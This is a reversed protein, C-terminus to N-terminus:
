ETLDIQDQVCGAAVTAEIRKDADSGTTTFFIPLNRVTPSTLSVGNLTTPGTVTNFHGTRRLNESKQRGFEAGALITDRMGGFQTTWVIDTQGTRLGLPFAKPDPRAGVIAVGEAGDKTKAPSFVPAQRRYPASGPTRGTSAQNAINEAIVRMRAQQAHLAWVAAGAAGDGPIKVM